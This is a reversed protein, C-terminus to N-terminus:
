DSLERFNGKKFNLFIKSGHKKSKSAPIKFSGEFYSGSKLKNLSAEAISYGSVFDKVFKGKPANFIELPNGFQEIKGSNMVAIFDSLYFADDIDHTVMVVTLGTNKQLERLFSKMKDKLHNDLGNLPEDLLLVAPSFSIARCIAARKAEGGSLGSPMRKEFGSLHAVLLADKVKKSVDKIGRVKLGFAVNEFVNLHSFLSDQQFVFGTNRKEPPLSTFDFDGFFVNGFDVKQLGSIIRLLTTKGCGSPGVISVFSGSPIELSLNQM